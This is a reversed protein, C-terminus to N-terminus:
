WIQPLHKVHQLLGLLFNSEAEIDCNCLISRNFLVYPYSPIDVLVDNNILCVMKEYSLWDALIIKHVGDLVSPKIDIKNLYFDFNCNEKVVKADLNFYM